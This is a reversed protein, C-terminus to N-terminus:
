FPAGRVCAHRGPTATTTYRFRSLSVGSYSIARSVKAHWTGTVGKLYGTKFRLTNRTRSFRGTPYARSAHLSRLPTYVYTGNARLRLSTSGYAPLSLWNGGARAIYSCRYTGPLGASRRSSHAPSAPPASLAVVGLSALAV